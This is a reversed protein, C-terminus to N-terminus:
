SIKEMRRCCWMEFNDQFKKDVRQLTWIEAGYLAVSMNYYKALKKRLLLDLNSTFLFKKKNFAAKAM